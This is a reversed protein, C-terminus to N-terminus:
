RNKLWENVVFQLEAAQLQADAATGYHGNKIETLAYERWNEMRSILAERMADNRERLREVEARAADREQRMSNYDNVLRDIYMDDM